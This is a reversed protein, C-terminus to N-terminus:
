DWLPVVYNRCSLPLHRLVISHDGQLAPDPTGCKWAAIPRGAHLDAQRMPKQMKKDLHPIFYIDRGAVMPSLHENFRLILVGNKRVKIAQVYIDKLIDQTESCSWHANNEAIAMKCDNAAHMAQRVKQRIEYNEYEPIGLWVMGVIVLAIMLWEITAFGRLLRLSRM